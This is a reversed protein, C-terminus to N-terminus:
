ILAMAWESTQCVGSRRPASRGRRIMRRSRLLLSVASRSSRCTPRL